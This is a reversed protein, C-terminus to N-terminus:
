ISTKLKTLKRGIPKMTEYLSKYIAFGQNYRPANDKCPEFIPIPLVWRKTAEQSVAEFPLCKTYSVQIFGFSNPDVLAEVVPAMMPLCPINFAPIVTANGYANKMLDRSTRQKDTAV